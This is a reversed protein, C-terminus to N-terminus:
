RDRRDVWKPRNPALPQEALEVADLGSTARRALAAHHGHMLGDAVCRDVFEFLPAYFGDVDVFVVACRILGLQNWTLVEFTEDLTGFGGPLVITAEALAAMQAKREHMTDVVELHTLGTHAVEAELLHRTIVGTVSAGGALATDAVIGMLGVHGGGYVLEHGRAALQTGVDIAAEAFASGHGSSSGCFVSIRM